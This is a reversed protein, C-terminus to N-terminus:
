PLFVQEQLLLGIFESIDDMEPKIKLPQDIKDTTKETQRTKGPQFFLDAVMAITLCISILIALGVLIKKLENFVIPTQKKRRNVRKRSVTKKKATVKKKTVVKKKAAPKKKTPPKKKVAM